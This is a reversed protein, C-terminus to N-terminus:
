PRTGVPHIQDLLGRLDALFVAYVDEWRRRGEASEFCRGFLAFHANLTEFLGEACALFQAHPNGGPSPKGLFRLFREWTSKNLRAHLRRASDLVEEARKQHSAWDAGLAAADLHGRAFAALHEGIDLMAGLAVSARNGSLAQALQDRIPDLVALLLVLENEWALDHASMEDAAGTPIRRVAHSRSPNCDNVTAM